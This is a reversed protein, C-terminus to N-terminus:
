TQSLWIAAPSQLEAKLQLPGSDLWLRAPVGGVALTLSLATMLNIPKRPRCLGGWGLTHGDLQLTKNVPRYFRVLTPGIAAAPAATVAKCAWLGRDSM